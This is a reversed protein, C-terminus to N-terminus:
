GNDAIRDIHTKPFLHKMLLHRNLGRPAFPPHFTASIAKHIQEFFKSYDEEPIISLEKNRILTDKAKKWIIDLSEENGEGSLKQKKAFYYTLNDFATQPT